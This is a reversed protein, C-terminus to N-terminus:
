SGYGSGGDADPNLIRRLDARIRHVHTGVTGLPLNAALAIEEYSHGALWMAFCQRSKPDQSDLHEMVVRIEDRAVLSRGQLDQGLLDGLTIGRGGDTEGVPTDMPVLLKMKSRARLFDVFCNQAIVQVFCAFPAVGRYSRIKTAIRGASMQVCDEFDEASLTTGYKKQHRLTLIHCAKLLQIAFSEALEETPGEQMRRVQEPDFDFPGQQTDSM